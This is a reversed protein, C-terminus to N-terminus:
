ILSMQEAAKVSRAIGILIERFETPTYIRPTSNKGGGRFAMLGARRCYSIGRRAVVDAPFADDPVKNVGWKLDPLDTFKVGVAYLWTPKPAYHGYQGQEVRCTWGYRAAGPLEAAIWGGKRPPKNLNFHAWAQSHEPHELVGGYRRVADLAAAFCGGDDGLKEVKGRKINGPQGKWMKGWRQCPPHAVVPHPGAYARADRGEDWPDVDPLGFYSGGTQVYLAAVQTMRGSNHQSTM